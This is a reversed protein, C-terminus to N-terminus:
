ASVVKPDSVIGAAEARKASVMQRQLSTAQLEVQIAKHPEKLTCLSRGPVGEDRASIFKEMTYIYKGPQYNRSISDTAKGAYIVHRGPLAEIRVDSEEPIDMVGTWKERPLKAEAADAPYPEFRLTKVSM